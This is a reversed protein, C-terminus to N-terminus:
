EVEDWEDFDEPVTTGYDECVHIRDADNEMIEATYEFDMGKYEISGTVKAVVM